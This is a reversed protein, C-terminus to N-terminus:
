VDAALEKKIRQVTFTGVGCLRATKLIGTGRALEAKVAEVKAQAVAPKGLRKGQAKARAMGSKVRDIIMEREWEGISAFVNAVLRGSPTSTDVGQKMLFVDIGLSRMDNMFTSLDQVSRSLRDVAWSAVMDFERRTAAKCLADFQPRRDRGKSGSIGEDKYVAVIQWGARDAMARLDREQNTAHQDSTSVRLYLAVKINKKGSAPPHDDGAAPAPSGAV